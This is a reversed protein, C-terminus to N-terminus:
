RWVKWGTDKPKVFVKTVNDHLKDLRGEIVKKFWWSSIQAMTTAIFVALFTALFDM